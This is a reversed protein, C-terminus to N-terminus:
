FRLLCPWIVPLPIPFSFPEPNWGRFIGKIIVRMGLLPVGRNTVVRIEDTGDFIKFLDNKLIPIDEVKTVFGSVLCEKNLYLGPNDNIEALTTIKPKGSKGYSMKDKCGALALVSLIALLIMLKKM